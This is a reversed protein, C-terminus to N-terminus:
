FPQPPPKRFNVRLDIGRVFNTETVIVPIPSPPVDSKGYMGVVRLSRTSLEPAFQQIVGVYYYTAPPLLFAYSVSDVSFPLNETFSPYLFIKPPSSLLGQLVKVSDLPYEQSAFIWLGVLSDRSPWTGKEFYVTGGFGPEFTSPPLPALGHDCSLLLLAIAAFPLRKMKLPLTAIAVIM